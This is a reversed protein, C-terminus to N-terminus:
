GGILEQYLSATDEAARGWDRRRSVLVADNALEARLADSRLVSGIARGLAAPSAEAILGTRRDEVLEPAASHPARVVVPVSGCAQAEAVVLAYGEHTSPLVLTKSSKMRAYLEADNDVHPIFAMSVNTPVTAARRRISPLEPGEGILTVKLSPIEAALLEIAELLLDLGKHKVFRGVFLIDTTDPFPFSTGIAELPIGNSIIRPQVNAGARLRNGTFESVAVNERALLPALREVGLAVASLPAPLYEFWQRGLYEHWTIVLPADGTAKAAAACVPIAAYSVSSCDILDPKFARLPLFLRAAFDASHLVSRRGTKTYM